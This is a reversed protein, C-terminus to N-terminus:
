SYGRMQLRKDLPSVDSPDRLKVALELVSHIDRLYTQMREAEILSFLQLDPKGIVTKGGKLFDSYAQLPAKLLIWGREGFLNTPQPTWSDLLATVLTQNVEVFESSLHAINEGPSAVFIKAIIGSAMTFVSDRVLLLSQHHVGAGQLVQAQAHIQQSILSTM